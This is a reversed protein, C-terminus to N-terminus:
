VNTNKFQMQKGEERIKIAIPGESRWGSIKRGNTPKLSTLSTVLSGLCTLSGIPHKDPRAEYEIKM